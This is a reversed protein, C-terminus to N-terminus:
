KSRRTRVDVDILRVYRFGNEEPQCLSTVLNVEDYLLSIYIPLIVSMMRLETNTTVIENVSKKTTLTLIQQLVTSACSKMTTPTGAYDSFREIDLYYPVNAKLTSLYAATAEDFGIHRLLEIERGPPCRYLMGMVSESSFGDVRFDATNFRSTFQKTALQSLGFTTGTLMLILNSPRSCNVNSHWEQKLELLVSGTASDYVQFLDDPGNPLRLFYRSSMEFKMEYEGLPKYRNRPITRMKMPRKGEEDKFMGSKSHMAFSVQPKYRGAVFKRGVAAGMLNQVSNMYSAQKLESGFKEKLSSSVGKIMRDPSLFVANSNDVAEQVAIPDSKVGGLVISISSSLGSLGMAREDPNGVPTPAEELDPFLDEFLMMKTLSSQSKFNGIPLQPILGGPVIFDTYNYVATFGFISKTCGLALFLDTMMGIGRVGFGRESLVEVGALIEGLSADDLPREADIPKNRSIQYGGFYLQQLFDFTFASSFSKGMTDFKQGCKKGAEDFVAVRDNVEVASMGDASQVTASDDGWMWKKLLVFGAVKSCYEIISSMGISNFNATFMIGSIMYDTKLMQYPAGIPKLIFYQDAHSRLARVVLDSYNHGSIDFFEQTDLVFQSVVDAAADFFFKGLHEDYKSADYAGLFLRMRLALLSYYVYYRSDHGNVGKNHALAYSANQAAALKAADYLPIVLVQMLFHVLFIGRTGRGPVDRRGLMGPYERTILRAFQEYANNLVHPLLLPLSTKNKISINMKPKKAPLQPAKMGGASFMDKIDAGNVIYGDGANSKSSTLYKMSHKLSEMTPPEIYRGITEFETRLYPDWEPFPGDTDIGERAIKEQRGASYVHQASGMLFGVFVGVRRLFTVCRTRTNDWNSVPHFSDDLCYMEMFKRAANSLGPIESSIATILDPLAVSKAKHKRKLAERAIDDNITFFERKFESGVTAHMDDPAPAESLTYVMGTALIMRSIAQGIGDLKKGMSDPDLLGVCIMSMMLDYMGPLDSSGALYMAGTVCAFVRCYAKSTTCNSTLRVDRGEIFPIMEPESLTFGEPTSDITRKESDEFVTLDQYTYGYDSARPIPKLGKYTSSSRWTDIQSSVKLNRDNSKWAQLLTIVDMQKGKPLRGPCKQGAWEVGMYCLAMIMPLLGHELKEEYSLEKTRLIILWGLIMDALKFPPYRGGELTWRDAPSEGATVGNEYQDAVGDRDSGTLDPQVQPACRFSYDIGDKTVIVNGAEYRHPYKCESLFSSDTDKDFIGLEYAKETGFPTFLMTRENNLFDKEGRPRVLNNNVKEQKGALVRKKDYDCCQNIFDDFIISNVRDYEDSELANLISIVEVCAMKVTEDQSNTVARRADLTSRVKSVEDFLAQQDGIHSKIAAKIRDAIESGNM